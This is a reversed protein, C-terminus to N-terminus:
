LRHRPNNRGISNYYVSRQADKQQGRISQNGNIKGTSKIASFSKSIRCWGRYAYDWNKNTTGKAKHHDIFRATEFEHNLAEQNKLIRYTDIDDIMQPSPHWDNPIEQLQNAKNNDIGTLPLNSGQVPTYTAGTHPLLLQYHTSNYAHKTRKILKADILIKIKRSVTGTGMGTRKSLTAISPWCTAEANAYDALTVLMWKALPDKIDVKMAEAILSFM